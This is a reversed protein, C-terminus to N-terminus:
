VKSLIPTFNVDSSTMQTLISVQCISEPQKTMKKNKNQLLFIHIEVFNLKKCLFQRLCWSANEIETSVELFNIKIVILLNLHHM